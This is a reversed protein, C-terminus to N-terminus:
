NNNCSVPVVLKYLCCTLCKVRERKMDNFQQDDLPFIYNRTFSPIQYTYMVVGEGEPTLSILRLIHRSIRLCYSIRNRFSELDELKIASLDKQIVFRVLSFGAKAPPVFLPPMEAVKRGLFVDFKAKFNDVERRDRSTPEVNLLIDVILAFNFISIYDFLLSILEDVSRKARFESLRTAFMCVPRETYIRSSHYISMREIYDVIMNVTIKKRLFSRWSYSILSHYNM